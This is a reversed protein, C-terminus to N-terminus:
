SAAATRSPGPAPTRHAWASVGSTGARTGGDIAASSSSRRHHCACAQSSCPREADRAARARVRGQRSPPTSAAAGAGSAASRGAEAGGDRGEWRVRVRRWAAALMSSGRVERVREGECGGGCRSGERRWCCRWVRGQGGVRLLAYGRVAAGHGEGCRRETGKAAGGSRRMECCRLQSCPEGQAGECEVLGGASADRRSGCAMAVTAGRVRPGVRLGCRWVPKQTGATACVPRDPLAASPSVSM